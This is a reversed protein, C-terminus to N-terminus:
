KEIQEHEAILKKAKALTINNVTFEIGSKLTIKVDVNNYKDHLDKLAVYIAAIMGVDFIKLVVEFWGAGDGRSGTKNSKEKIVFAIEDLQDVTDQFDSKFEKSNLLNLDDSEVTIKM